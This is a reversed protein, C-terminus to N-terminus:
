IKKQHIAQELISNLEQVEKNEKTVSFDWFIKQGGEKEVLINYKDLLSHLTDNTYTSALSELAKIILQQEEERINTNKIKYNPLISYGGNKGADAYVPIGISSISIIDRQITRISVDYRKAFYSAPVNEHNLLYIIIGLLRDLKM